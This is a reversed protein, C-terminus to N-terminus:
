ITKHKPNASKVEVQLHLNQSMTHFINITMDAHSKLHHFSFFIFFSLSLFFFPETIKFNLMASGAM